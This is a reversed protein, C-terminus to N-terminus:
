PLFQTLFAWQSAPKPKQYYKNLEVKFTPYEHPYEEGEKDAQRKILDEVGVLGTRTCKKFHKIDCTIM